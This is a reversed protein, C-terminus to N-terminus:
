FLEACASTSPSIPSKNNAITFMARKRFISGSCASRFVLAFNRRRKECMSFPTAAAPFVSRSALMSSISDKHCSAFRPPFHNLDPGEGRMRFERGRHIQLAADPTEVVDFQKGHPQEDCCELYASLREARKIAASHHPKAQRNGANASSSLDIQM